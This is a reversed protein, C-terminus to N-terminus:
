SKQKKIKFDYKATVKCEAFEQYIAAIENRFYEVSEKDVARRKVEKKTFPAQVMWRYPPIGVSPDGHDTILLSAEEWALLIKNKKPM